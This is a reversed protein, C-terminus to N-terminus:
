IYLGEEAMEKKVEDILEKSFHDELKDGEPLGVELWFRLSQKPTPMWRKIEEIEEQTLVHLPRKNM